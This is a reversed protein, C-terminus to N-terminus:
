KKLEQLEKSFKETFTKFREIEDVRIEYILGAQEVTQGGAEKLLEKTLPLDGHSFEAGLELPSSFPENVTYIRGGIRDLAELVIIKTGARALNRALVLGTIGAGIVICDAKTTQSPM